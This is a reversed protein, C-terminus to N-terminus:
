VAALDPLELVRRGIDRRLVRHPWRITEAATYARRLAAALDDGRACVNLVRGGTAVVRDDRRETGAHFIEVTDDYPGDLGEIVDGTVPRAPYGENALVLCASAGPLFRLPEAPLRGAAADRLAPLLDSELRPLLAQAEPDGLRVNFELVKPGDDTLMLGAYLFGRFPRDERAMGAITPRLIASEVRQALGADVLGSPSHAGMGGTNPGSDGEGIRKYDKSTALAVLREGDSIAIASVEEGTLHEEVVIADGAHGFRREDFFAALAQELEEDGHPILVGKGAALGDAKLVVPLGFAAVARRAAAEDAVVEARATPIRQRELFQKAFAKSGELEAARASPGFLPLGRDAFRDAIGVVLPQEPGVVTLDVGAREAFAALGDVDDAAVAVPEAIAATGPNGPACFLTDVQPSRALKWCLAHERGGSGVVLVKM